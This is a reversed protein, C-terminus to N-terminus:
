DAGRGGRWGAGRADSLGDAVLGDDQWAVGRQAVALKHRDLLGFSADGRLEEHRIRWADRHENRPQADRLRHYAQDAVDYGRVAGIGYM